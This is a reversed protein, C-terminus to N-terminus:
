RGILHGWDLARGLARDTFGPHAQRLHALDAETDWPGYGLRIGEEILTNSRTVAEDIQERSHLDGLAELLDIPGLGYEGIHGSFRRNFYHLTFVANLANLERAEAVHKARRALVDVKAMEIRALADELEAEYREPPFGPVIEQLRELAETQPERGEVMRTGRYWAASRLRSEKEEPTENQPRNHDTM